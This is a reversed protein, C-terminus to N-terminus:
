FSKKSLQKNTKKRLGAGNLLLAHYSSSSYFEIQQKYRLMETFYILYSSKKNTKANFKNNRQKVKRGRCAKGEERMSRIISSLFSYCPLFNIQELQHPNKNEDKRDEIKERQSECKNGNPINM